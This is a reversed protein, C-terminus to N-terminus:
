EAEEQIEQVVWNFTELVQNLSFEDQLTSLRLYPFRTETREVPLALGISSFQARLKAWEEPLDFPTRDAYSQSSIELGGWIGVRFLEHSQEGKQKLQTVFGGYTEGTGWQVEVSPQSQAWEYIRRAMNAEDEGRRIRFEQFFSTEDWRRRERTSSSKKLKAEVTQGIVRPVLTRLGEEESAYQKLEVALVEAPDMQENLFEVVQRLESPIRDGVFVLRVKGAQLNTKVKQWFLEEDADSGLFSEFVQEPDRGRDRCNAEFQAIISEIPWYVGANAAYELMQGVLERRLRHDNGRKVDVLTPTANQDIFLREISWRGGSDEEPPLPTEREVLLWQRPVSADIRDGALLNPYAELLEQLQEESDYAQEVMEVLQEDDQILYIGGSM